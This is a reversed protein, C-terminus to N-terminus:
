LKNILFLPVIWIWFGFIKFFLHFGQQITTVYGVKTKTVNTLSNSIM